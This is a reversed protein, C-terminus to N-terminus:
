NDNLQPNDAGKRHNNREDMGIMVTAGDAYVEGLAQM